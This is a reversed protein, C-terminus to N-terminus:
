ESDSEDCRVCTFGHSGDPGAYQALTMGCINCLQEFTAPPPAAAIGRRLVREVRDDARSRERKEVAFAVALLAVQISVEGKQVRDGLREIWEDLDLVKADVPPASEALKMARRM